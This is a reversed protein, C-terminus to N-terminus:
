RILRWDDYEQLYLAFATVLLYLGNYSLVASMGITLAGIGFVTFVLGAALLLRSSWLGIVLLLGLLVEVVPIAYIVPTTFIQPVWSQAFMETFTDIYNSYGGIFKGVGSVLFVLGIFFRLLFAGATYEFKKSTEM